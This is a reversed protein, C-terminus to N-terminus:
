QSSYFANIWIDNKWIQLREFLRNLNPEHEEWLQAHETGKVVDTITEAICKAKKSVAFVNEVIHDKLTDGFTQRGLSAPIEKVIKMVADQNQM